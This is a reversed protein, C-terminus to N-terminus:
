WWAARPTAPAGGEALARRLARAVMVRQRLPASALYRAEFARKEEEGLRDAAYDDLLDDEAARLREWTEPRAFYAQEMAEVQAEPMLGLLYLRLDADVPEPLM